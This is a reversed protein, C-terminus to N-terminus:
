LSVGRDLGLDSTRPAANSTAQIPATRPPPYTHFQHLVSVPYTNVLHESICTTTNCYWTYWILYALPFPFFSIFPFHLVYCVHFIPLLKTCSIYSSPSNQKLPNDTDCSLCISQYRYAYHMCLIQLRLLFSRSYGPLKKAVGLWADRLPYVTCVM